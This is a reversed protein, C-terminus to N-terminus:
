STMPITIVGNPFDGAAFITRVPGAPVADAPITVQTGAATGANITTVMAQGAVVTEIAGV